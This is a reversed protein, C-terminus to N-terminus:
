PRLSMHRFGEFQLLILSCLLRRPPMTSGMQLHYKLFFHFTKDSSVWYKGRCQRVDLASESISVFQVYTQIFLVNGKINEFSRGRSEVLFLLFSQATSARRNFENEEVSELSYRIAELSSCNRVNRGCRFGKWKWGFISTAYFSNSRIFAVLTASM